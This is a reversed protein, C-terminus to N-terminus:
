FKNLVSLSRPKEDLLGAAALRGLKKKEPM